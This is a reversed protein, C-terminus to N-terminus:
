EAILPVEMGIQEECEARLTVYLWGNREERSFATHLVAGDEGITQHLQYLLQAEGERRATEAANRAPVTDYAVTRETVLSLPLRLGFPLVAPRYEAIKACDAGLVSGGAYFKIRRRGADLSLRTVHGSEGAREAAALPVPVTLTYWTRARVTGTARMLRVGRPSDAAGSILLQGATVTDGPSVAAAGDLATAETVLGDRRAVINQVDSDRYLHPPRTREVVQVHATCGRVNVALYVVDPLLPLVRNRLDDQDLGVGRTGVAVGCRELAQLIEETPVTNNGSVAFDWIFASGLALLLPLVLAAALLVYRRRCRRWLEPAGTKRLLRIDADTDATVERLRRLGPLTTTVRFCRETRWDVDWFPIGHAACLNVVREPASSTIEVVAQGRLYNVAKRYM